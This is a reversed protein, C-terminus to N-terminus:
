FFKAKLTPKLPAQYDLAVACEQPSNRFDWVHFRAWEYLQDPGIVMTGPASRECEEAHDRMCVLDTFARLLWARIQRATSSPMLDFVSRACVDHPLPPQSPKSLVRDRLPPVHDPVFRLSSFRPDDFTPMSDLFGDPIDQLQPPQIKEALFGLDADDASLQFLRDKLWRAAHWDERLASEITSPAFHFPAPSDM